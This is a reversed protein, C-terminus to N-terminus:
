IIANLREMISEENNKFKINNLEQKINEEKNNELELLKSPYDIGNIDMDIHGSIIIDVTGNNRSNGIAYGIVTSENVGHDISFIMGQSNIGVMSGQGINEGNITIVGDGLYISDLM